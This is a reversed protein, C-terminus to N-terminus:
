TISPFNIIETNVDSNEPDGHLNNKFFDNAQDQGKDNRTLKIGPKLLNKPVTEIDIQVESGPNNEEVTETILDNIEPVDFIQCSRKHVNLGRVTTFDRGCYCKFMRDKKENEHPDFDYNRKDVNCNTTNLLVLSNSLNVISANNGTSSTESVREPNEVRAPCRWTHRGIKKLDKFCFECTVGYCIKIFCNIFGCYDVLFKEFINCIFKKISQNVM